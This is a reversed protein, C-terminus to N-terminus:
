PPRESTRFRTRGASVPRASGGSVARFISIEDGASVATALGGTFRVNERGVFVNVHERIAGEENAVRDRLGPCVTWLAELADALTAPSGGIELRDREGAFPRLDSSLHFVVSM